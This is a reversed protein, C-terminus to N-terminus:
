AAPPLEATRELLRLVILLTAVESARRRVPTFNLSGILPNKMIRRSHKSGKAGDSEVWPKM